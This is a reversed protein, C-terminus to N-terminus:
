KSDQGITVPWSSCKAEMLKYMWTYPYVSSRGATWRGGVWDIQLHMPTHIGVIYSVWLTYVWLTPYGCHTYGCQLIGAIHIGVIYWVCSNGPRYTPTGRVSRHHVSCWLLLQTRQHTWTGQHTHTHMCHVCCWNYHTLIYLFGGWFVVVVVVVVNEQCLWWHIWEYVYTTWNFVWRVQHSHVCTYGNMYMHQETSFGDIRTRTCVHIWEYVYATWNFVWRMQHTYVCTYGHMYMHQETSFGDSRTHMCVLTDMWICISNTSFGDLRTHTCVCTFQGYIYTTWNFVWRMQTHICLHIWGYICATWNFDGDSRTHTCVCTDM